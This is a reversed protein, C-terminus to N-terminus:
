AARAFGGDIMDQKIVKTPGKVALGVITGAPHEYLDDTSDGDSVTVGNWTVPLNNKKVAFVVAVRHGLACAEVIDEDEWKESASYVITLGDVEPREEPSFKTYTYALPAIDLLGPALVEWRIDDSVNVRWRAQEKGGVQRVVQKLKDATMAIALDPRMLTLVDRLLRTRQVMDHRSNNSHNTVCGKICNSTARPCVSVHLASDIDEVTCSLASAVDSKLQPDAEAWATGGSNAAHLTVGVTAVGAKGMKPNTEGTTFWSAASKYGAARSLESWVDYAEDVIEATLQDETWPKGGLRKLLKREVPTLRYFNSHVEVRAVGVDHLPTLTSTV